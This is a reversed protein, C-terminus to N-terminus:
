EQRLDPIWPFSLATMLRRCRSVSREKMLNIRQLLPRSGAIAPIKNQVEAALPAGSGLFDRDFVFGDM